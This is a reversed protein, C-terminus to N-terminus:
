VSNSPPEALRFRKKCPERKVSSLSSHVVRMQLQMLVSSPIEQAQHQCLQVQVQGQGQGQGQGQASKKDANTMCLPHRQATRRM